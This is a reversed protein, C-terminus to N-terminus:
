VWYLCCEAWSSYYNLEILSLTVVVVGSIERVEANGPASSQGVLCVHIPRRRRLPLTTSCTLESNYDATYASYFLEVTLLASAVNKTGPQPINTWELMPNLVLSRIHKLSQTLVSSTWAPSAPSSSSPQTAGRRRGPSRPRQRDARWWQQPREEKGWAADHWVKLM